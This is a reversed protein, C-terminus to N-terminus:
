QTHRPPGLPLPKVSRAEHVQANVGVNVRHSLLELRNCYQEQDQCAIALTTGHGHM